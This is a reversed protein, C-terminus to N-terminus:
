GDHNEARVPEQKNRERRVAARTLSDLEAGLDSSKMSQSPALARVVVCTGAPLASLRASLLHRLKRKVRNRDVARRVQRKGVVVGARSLKPDSVADQETRQHTESCSNEGSDLKLYVM